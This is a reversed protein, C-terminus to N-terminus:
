RTGVSDTVGVVIRTATGTYTPEKPMLAPVTLTLTRLTIRSPEMAEAEFVM